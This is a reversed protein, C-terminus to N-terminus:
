IMIWNTAAGGIAVINGFFTKRAFNAGLAVQPTNGAIGNITTSAGEYTIVSVNHAGATGAGDWLELSQPTGSYPNVTVPPLTFTRAATLSTYAFRAFGTTASFNTDAIGKPYPQNIDGLVLWGTGAIPFIYLSLFAVNVTFTSANSLIGAGSIVDAGSANFTVTNSYLAGLPDVFLFAGGTTSSALTVTCNNGSGGQCWLVEDTPQQTYTGTPLRTVKPVYGAGKIQGTMAGGSLSLYGALATSLDVIDSAHHTHGILSFGVFAAPNAASQTFVQELPRNAVDTLTPHNAAVVLENYQILSIPVTM